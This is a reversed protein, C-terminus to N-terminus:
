LIVTKMWIINWSSNVLKCSQLIFEDMINIDFSRINVDFYNMMNMFIESRQDFNGWGIKGRHELMGLVESSGYVISYKEIREQRSNDEIWNLYFEEKDITIKIDGRKKAEQRWGNMRIVYKDGNTSIGYDIDIM